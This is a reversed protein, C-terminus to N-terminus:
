VVFLLGVMIHSFWCVDKKGTNTDMIHSPWLIIVGLFLQRVNQILTRSHM